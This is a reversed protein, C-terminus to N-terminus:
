GGANQYTRRKKESSSFEASMRWLEAPEEGEDCGVGDDVDGAANLGVQALGECCVSDLDERLVDSEGDEGEGDDGAEGHALAAHDGGGADGEGVGAVADEGKALEDGLDVGACAGGDVGDDDIAAYAYDQKEKDEAPCQSSTREEADAGDSREDREGNGDEDAHKHCGVAELGPWPM